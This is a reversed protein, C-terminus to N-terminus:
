EDIVELYVRDQEINSVASDASNKQILLDNELAIPNQNEQTKWQAIEQNIKDLIEDSTLQKTHKPQIQSQAVPTKLLKKYASYSMLVVQPEGAENIVILKEQNNKIQNITQKSLHM